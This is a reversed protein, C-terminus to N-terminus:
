AAAGIPQSACVRLRQAGDELFDSVEFVAPANSCRRANSIAAQLWAHTEPLLSQAAAVPNKTVTEAWDFAGEPLRLCDPYSMRVLQRAYRLQRLRGLEAAYGRVASADGSELAPAALVLQEYLRGWFPSTRVAAEIGPNVVSALLQPEPPAEACEVLGLAAKLSSVANRMTAGLDAASRNKSWRRCGLSEFTPPSGPFRDPDHLEAHVSLEGHSHWCAYVHAVLPATAGDKFSVSDVVRISFYKRM